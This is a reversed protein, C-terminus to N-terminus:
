AAWMVATVQHTSRVETPASQSITNQQWTTVQANRGNLRNKTQLLCSQTSWLNQKTKHVEKWLLLTYHSSIVQRDWAVSKKWKTNQKLHLIMKFWKLRINRVMMFSKEEKLQYCHFSIKRERCAKVAKRYEESSKLYEAIDNKARTKMQFTSGPLTTKVLVLLETNTFM